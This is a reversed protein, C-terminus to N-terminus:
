RWPRQDAEFQGSLQLSATNTAQLVDDQGASASRVQRTHTRIGVVKRVIGEDFLQAGDIARRFIQEVVLVQHVQEHRGQTGIEFHTLGVLIAGVDLQVRPRANEPPPEVRINWLRLDLCPTGVEFGPVDLERFEGAVVEENMRLLLQNEFSDALDETAQRTSTYCPIKPFRSASM